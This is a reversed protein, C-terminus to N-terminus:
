CYKGRIQVYWMYIRRYIGINQIKINNKVKHNISKNVITFYSLTVCHSIVM